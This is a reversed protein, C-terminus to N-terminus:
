EDSCPRMPAYSALRVGAGGGAGAGAAQAQLKKVQDQLQQKESFLARRAKIEKRVSAQVEKVWAQSQALAQALAAESQASQALAQRLAAERQASQRLEM